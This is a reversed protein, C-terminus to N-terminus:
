TRPTDKEVWAYSAVDEAIGPNLNPFESFKRLTCEFVFGGKELVHRSPHHEPHCMAHLRKVGLDAALQRMALLAETAFGQGWAEKALVYGTSARFPADFSLGTSGLLSGDDLSCIVYPGAPWRAWEAESYELFVRTDDVSRHMPWALFRTVEPDSAYRRFIETADGSEPKRLLLRETQINSPAKVAPM